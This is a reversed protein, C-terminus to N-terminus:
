TGGWTGGGAPTFMRGQEEESTRNTSTQTLLLVNFRQLLCLLVDSLDIELAESTIKQNLTKLRTDVRDQDFRETGTM